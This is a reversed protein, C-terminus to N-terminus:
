CLGDKKEMISFPCSYLGRLTHSKRFHRNWYIFANPYNKTLNTVRQNQSQTTIDNQPSLRLIELTSETLILLNKMGRLAPNLIVVLLLEGM